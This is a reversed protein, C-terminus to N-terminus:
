RKRNEWYRISKCRPCQTPLNHLNRRIWGYNCKYCRLEFEDEYEEKYQAYDM